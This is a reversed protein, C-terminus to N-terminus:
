SRRWRRMLASAPGLIRRESRGIIRRLGRILRQRGAVTDLRRWWLGAIVLLRGRIILLPSRLLRCRHGRVVLLAKRWLGAIILLAKRLLRSVIM